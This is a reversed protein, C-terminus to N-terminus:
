TYIARERFPLASAPRFTTLSKSAWVIEERSPVFGTQCLGAYLGALHDIDGLASVEATQSPLLNGQITAEDTLAARWDIEALLDDPIQFVPGTSLM